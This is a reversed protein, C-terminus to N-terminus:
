RHGRYRHPIRRPRARRGGESRREILDDYLDFGGTLGFRHDLPFGGVFAGTAFGRLREFTRQAEFAAAARMNALYSDRSVELKSYDRWNDPYGVKITYTDLKKM